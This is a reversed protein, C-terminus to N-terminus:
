YDYFYVGKSDTGVWNIGFKGTERRYLWGSSTGDVVDAFTVAQGTVYAINTLGNFPNEPLENVYPGYIYPSSPVKSPSVAGTVTTTATFQFELFTEGVPSGNAYGPLIGEHDMKYIEIQTRMTSLSEKASSERGTATHGKFSPLVVAALIGLLLIVVLLEYITFAKRAM